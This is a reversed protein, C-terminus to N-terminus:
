IYEFCDFQNCVNSLPLRTLEYLTKTVTEAWVHKYQEKKLGDSSCLALPIWRLINRRGRHEHSFQSDNIKTVRRGIETRLAVGFVEVQNAHLRRGCRV